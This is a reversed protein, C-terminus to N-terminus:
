DSRGRTLQMEVGNAFPYVVDLEVQKKHSGSMTERSVAGVQFVGGSLQTEAHGPKKSKASSATAIHGCNGTRFCFAAHGAGAWVRAGM